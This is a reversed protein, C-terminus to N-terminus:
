ITEKHLDEMLYVEGKYSKEFDIKGTSLYEVKFKSDLRNNEKCFVRTNHKGNQYYKYVVGNWKGATKYGINCITMQDNQNEHYYKCLGMSKDNDYFGEFYKFGTEKDYLEGYGSGVKNRVEGIYIEADGYDISQYGKLLQEDTLNIIELKGDHWHGMCMLKECLDYKAGFGHFKDNRFQGSYKVNGNRYFLTGSGDFKNFSWQGSYEKVSNDYYLDGKGQKVYIEMETKYIMKGEYTKIGNQNYILGNFIGDGFHGEMHLGGFSYFKKGLGMMKDMSWNGEYNKNGNEDFSTGFGNKKGVLFIGSFQVTGSNYYLTGQDNMEDDLWNGSYLKKNNEDFITGNGSKKNEMFDGKYLENGNKHYEIGYGSKKNNLYRGEYILKSTESDYFKYNNLIKNNDLNIEYDLKPKDNKGQNRDDCVTEKHIKYSTM